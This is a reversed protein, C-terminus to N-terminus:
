RRGARSWVVEVKEGGLRNLCLSISLPVVVGHVSFPLLLPPLLTFISDTGSHASLCLAAAARPEVCQLPPRRATPRRGRGRPWRARAAAEEGDPAAEERRGRMRGVQEPRLRRAGDGRRPGGGGRALGGGDRRRQRTDDERWGRAGAQAAARSSTGTSSLSQPPHSHLPNPWSPNAGPGQGRMPRPSINKGPCTPAPLHVCLHVSAKRLHSGDRGSVVPGRSSPGV